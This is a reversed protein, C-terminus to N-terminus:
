RDLDLVNGGVLKSKPFKYFDGEDTSHSFKVDPTFTTYRNYDKDNIMATVTKGDASVKVYCLNFQRTMQGKEKRIYEEIWRRILESRNVAKDDTVRTFENLLEEPLRIHLNKNKM